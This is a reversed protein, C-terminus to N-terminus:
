FKKHEYSGKTQVELRLDNKFFSNQMFAIKICNNDNFDGSM